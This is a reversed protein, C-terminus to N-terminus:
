QQVCSFICIRFALDEFIATFMVQPNPQSQVNSNFCFCEVDLRAPRREELYSLCGHQQLNGDGFIEVSGEGHINNGVLDQTCFSIQSKESVNNPAFFPFCKESPFFTHTAPLFMAPRALCSCPCCDSCSFSKICLRPAM